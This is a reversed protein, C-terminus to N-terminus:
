FKAYSDYKQQLSRVQDNHVEILTQYKNSEDKLRQEIALEYEKNM